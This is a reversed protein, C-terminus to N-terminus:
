GHRREAPQSQRAAPQSQRAAPAAARQAPAADNRQPPASYTRAVQPPAPNARVVQPPSYTRAVQPPAPAVRAVPAVPASYKREVPPAPETRAVPAPASYTRTQPPVYSTRPTNNVTTRTPRSVAAPPAHQAVGGNGVYGHPRSEWGAPPTTARRVQGDFSFSRQVFRHSSLDFVLSFSPGWGDAYGPYWEGPGYYVAVPPPGQYQYPTDIEIADFNSGDAYGDITVSMGPELTLGTPNIITGQHLEISDSYGNSDSVTINWTDNISSVTGQIQQNAEGVAYSPMDQASVIAPTILATAAIAAGLLRPIFANKIHLM